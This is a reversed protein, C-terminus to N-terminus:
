IIIKDKKLMDKIALNFRHSACGVSGIQHNNCLSKALCRNLACNDGIIALVNEWSKRFLPLVFEIFEEHNEGNQSTEDEFPPLTLLM